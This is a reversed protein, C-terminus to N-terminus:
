PGCYYFYLDRLDEAIALDSSSLTYRCGEVTLYSPGPGVLTIYQDPLTPPCVYEPDGESLDIVQVNQIFEQLKAFITPNADCAWSTNFGGQSYYITADGTALDFEIDYDEDIPDYRYHFVATEYEQLLSYPEINQPVIVTTTKDTCAALLLGFAILILRTATKM